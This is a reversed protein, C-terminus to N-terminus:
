RKYGIDRLLKYRKEKDNENEVGLPKKGDIVGIIGRGELGDDYVLVKLPNATAAYINVVEMVNKLRNLVNIPYAEKLLIVFSHGAGINKAIETSKRILVPDNGENRILREGSAENFAVGFKINPSSSILAEYIDEVSKIFHSQGLIINLGDPDINVEDVNLGM